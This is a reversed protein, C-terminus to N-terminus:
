DISSLRLTQLATFYETHVRASKSIYVRVYVCSYLVKDPLM